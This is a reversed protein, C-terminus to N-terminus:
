RKDFAELDALMLAGTQVGVVKGVITVGVQHQLGEEHRLVDDIERFRRVTFDFTSKREPTVLVARDGGHRVQGDNRGASASWPMIQQRVEVPLKKKM